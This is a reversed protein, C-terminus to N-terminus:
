AGWTGISALYKKLEATRTDYAAAWLDQFQAEEPDTFYDATVIRQGNPHIRFIKNYRQAAKELLDKEPVDPKDEHPADGAIGFATYETMLSSNGDATYASGKERWSRFETTPQGLVKIFAKGFKKTIEEEYAYSKSRPLECSWWEGVPETGFPWSQVRTIPDIHGKAWVIGKTALATVTGVVGALLGRRNLV